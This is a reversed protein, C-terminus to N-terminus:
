KYDKPKKNVFDKVGPKKAHKEAHMQSHKQSHKHAHKKALMTRVFRFCTPIGIRGRGLVLRRDRTRPQIPILKTKTGM